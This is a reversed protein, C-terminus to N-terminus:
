RKAFREAIWDIAPGTGHFVPVKPALERLLAETQEYAERAHRELGAPEFILLTRDPEKCVAVTAEVLSFASLPNGPEKPDGLYFVLLAADHQTVGAGLWERAVGREVLRGIFEERWRNCGATGGLFILRQAPM